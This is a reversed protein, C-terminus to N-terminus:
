QQSSRVVRREETPACEASPLASSSDPEAALEALGTGGTMRMSQREQTFGPFRQLAERRAPEFSVDGDSYQRFLALDLESIVEGIAPQLQPWCGGLRDRAEIVMADVGAGRLLHAAYLGSLGGGIIVVQTETVRIAERQRVTSLM